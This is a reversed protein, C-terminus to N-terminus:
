KMVGLNKQWNSKKMQGRIQDIDEQTYHYHDMFFMKEVISIGAQEITRTFGEPDGIAAVAMMRAEPKMTKNSDKIHKPTRISYRSRLRPRNIRRALSSLFPAPKKLNYKTFIIVDARKLSMWPERLMGYPLLKHTARSDQSNILVIDIDREISRHQFADDMIIIDPNFRDVLVMGGRHRNSDVVIPVGTLANAMLTPEDGFNRWDTVPTKGDTVVQTGATKRGYGRSLISVRHGKSLLMKALYIVAPTKGTGGSTINGVSIVRAPLKRTVFFGTSYFLNRWFTIGWYLLALPFLGYRVKPELQHKWAM